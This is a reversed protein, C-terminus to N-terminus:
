NKLEANARFHLFPNLNLDIGVTRKKEIFQSVVSKIFFTGGKICFYLYLPPKYRLNNQVSVTNVGLTRPNM